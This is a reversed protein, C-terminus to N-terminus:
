LAGGKPNVLCVHQTQRDIQWTDIVLFSEGFESALTEAYEKAREYESFAGELSPAFFKYTWVEFRSPHAEPRLKIVLDIM